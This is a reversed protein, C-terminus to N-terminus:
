SFCFLVGLILRYITIAFFGNREMYKVLMRIMLLGVVATVAISELTKSSLFFDMAQHKSYLSCIELFLAGFISPIAMFLSFYLAKKRNIGLMRSATLCVGLRSVGPFIAIVQACGVFFAKWASVPLKSTNKQPATRDVLLLLMAFCCSVIGIALNSDFENVFKKSSLGVICIPLTGFLLPTFYTDKLRVKNTFLGKFIHVIDKIFYCLFTILSGAHLAIKVSFSFGDSHFLTSFYHLNISSSIPLMEGIGQIIGLLISDPHM